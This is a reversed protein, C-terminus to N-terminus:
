MSGLGVCVRRRVLASGVQVAVTVDVARVSQWDAARMEAGPARRGDGLVFCADFGQVHDTVYTGSANRWVIRRVPDWVIVVDEPAEDVGDRVLTLSGGPDRAAEPAAVQVAGGVDQAISRALAAAITAAQVRDDTAEALTGVSWVWGYAAALVVAAM